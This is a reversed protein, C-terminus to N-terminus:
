SKGGVVADRQAVIATCFMHGNCFREVVEELWTDVASGHAPPPVSMGIKILWASWASRWSTSDDLGEPDELIARCVQRLAEPLVFGVFLADQEAAGPNPYLLKNVELVPGEEDMRMRWGLQGLEVSEIPILSESQGPNRLRVNEASALLKPSKSDRILVRFSPAESADLETLPKPSKDWADFRGLEFRQASRGAKAVCVVQSDPPVSHNGLDIRTLAFLKNSGLESLEVNVQSKGLEILGTPNSRRTMRPM